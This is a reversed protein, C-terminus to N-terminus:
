EEKKNSKKAEFYSRFVGYSWIRVAIYAIFIGAIILITLKFFEM